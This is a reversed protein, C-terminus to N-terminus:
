RNGQQNLERIVFLVEILSRHLVVNGCRAIRLLHQVVVSSVIQVIRLRQFITVVPQYLVDIQAPLGDEDVLGGIKAQLINNFM